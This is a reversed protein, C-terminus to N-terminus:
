LYLYFLCILTIYTIIFHKFLTTLYYKLITKSVNGLVCDYKVSICKLCNTPYGKFPVPFSCNLLRDCNARANKSYDLDICDVNKDNYYQVNEVKLMYPKACTVHLWEEHREKTEHACKTASKFSGLLVYYTFPFRRALLM